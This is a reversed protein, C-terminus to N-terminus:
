VDSSIIISDGDPNNDKYSVYVTIKIHWKWEKM